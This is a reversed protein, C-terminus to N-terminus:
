RNTPRGVRFVFSTRDDPRPLHRAERHQFQVCVFSRIRKSSTGASVYLIRRASVHNYKQSSTIWFTGGIEWIGVGVPYVTVTVDKSSVRAFVRTFVVLDDMM